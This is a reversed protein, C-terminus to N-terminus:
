PRSTKKLILFRLIKWPLGERTPNRYSAIVLVRPRHSIVKGLPRIAKVAYLCSSSNCRTYMTCMDVQTTTFPALALYHPTAAPEYCSFFFADDYTAIHLLLWHQVTHLTGEKSTHQSCSSTSVVDSCM